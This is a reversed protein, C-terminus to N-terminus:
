RVPVFRNTPPSALRGRADFALGTAAEAEALLEEASRRIAELDIPEIGTPSVIAVQPRGPVFMFSQEAYGDLDAELITAGTEARRVTGNVILLEGRPGWRLPQAPAPQGPVVLHPAGATVDIIEVGRAGFYALWRGDPSPAVEARPQAPAPLHTLREGTATNWSVLSGGSLGAVHSGDDSWGIRELAADRPFDSLAVVGAELRHVELADDGRRLARGDPGVALAGEPVVVEGDLGLVAVGGSPTEVEAMTASLYRQHPIALPRAKPSRWREGLREPVAGPRELDYGFYHTGDRWLLRLGARGAHLEPTFRQAAPLPRPARPLAWAQLAGDGRVTYLTSADPAIAFSRPECAPLRWSRGTAVDSVIVTEGDDVAVLQGDRSFQVGDVSPSDAQADLVRVTRGADVDFLQVAMGPVAWALLSGGPQFAADNPGRPSEPVALPRDEGTALDIGSVEDSPSRYLLSPGGARTAVYGWANLERRWRVRGDVVDIAALLRGKPDDDSRFTAIIADGAPTATVRTALSWPGISLEFTRLPMLNIADLVVIEGGSALVLEAEGDRELVALYGGLSAGEAVVEGSDGDLIQLGVGAPRNIVGLGGPHAIVGSSPPFLRAREAGSALGWLAAGTRGRATVLTAGDPSVALALPPKAGTQLVHGARGDLPRIRVEGQADGSILTAGDPAFILEIAPAPHGAGPATRRESDGEPDWLEVRGSRRGIALTEGDASWALATVPEGADAEHMSMGTSTSSVRVFGDGGGTAVVGGDPRIAVATVAGAHGRIRTSETATAVTVVSVEGADNGAAIIRGAPDVDISTVTFAGLDVREHEERPGDHIRVGSEKRISGALLLGEADVDWRQRFNRPGFRDAGTQRLTEISWRSRWGQEGILLLEGNATFRAVDVSRGRFSTPTTFRLKPSRARARGLATRVAPSDALTAARALTVWAECPRGDAALREGREHLAEGAQRLADARAAVAADAEARATAEAARAALEAESAAREAALARESERRADALAQRTASWSRALAVGGGGALGVVLLAGLVLTAFFARNRRAWRGLRERPGIPRARIAQGALFRGLDDALEAASSFRREPEKELCRLVITELDAHLEPVLQRPPTPDDTQVAKVIAIVSDGPFPAKATLAHYLVAGLGWVDAPTGTQASGRAQEPAAYQPTGLFQGERTLTADADLRRALGFDTLHARDGADVIVNQPKVDRHIIGHDHAHALAAAIAEILTAARRPALPGDSEVIADLTRGEVYDMVIFPRGAPDQGVEHVAIIAPHRLRAAARAERVFRELGRGDTEDRLIMKIAVPRQLAPDFGRYVVGMGGRGLEVDLVYRGLTQGAGARFPGPPPPGSAPTPADSPRLPPTRPTGGRPDALGSM